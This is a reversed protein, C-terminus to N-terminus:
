CIKEVKIGSADNFRIGLSQGCNEIMCPGKFPMTCQLCVMAGESIGLDLLRRKVAEGLSSLDTIKAKEGKKLESLLM